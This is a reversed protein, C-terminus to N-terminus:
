RGSGLREKAAKLIEEAERVEERDVQLEDNYRARIYIERLRGAEGPATMPASAEMVDKSTTHRVIPVGKRGVCALYKRYIERVRQNNTPAATKKKRKRRGSEGSEFEEAKEFSPVNEAFPRRVNKILKYVVFLVFVLLALLFVFLMAKGAANAWAYDREAPAAATEAAPLLTEGAEGTLMEAATETENEGANTLLRYLRDIGGILFRFLGDFPLLLLGLLPGLAAFVLYAATSALTGGLAVGTVEGLNVLEGARSVGEGMRKRRLILIGLLLYLASFLIAARRDPHETICIVLLLLMPVAPIGFWLKYDEYYIDNKGSVALAFGFLLVAGLILRQLSGSAALLSLAPLLAIAIRVAPSERRYLLFSSVFTLVLAAAFVAGAGSFAEFLSALAFFPLLDCVPKLAHATRM